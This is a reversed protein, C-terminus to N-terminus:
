WIKLYLFTKEGQNSTFSYQGKQLQSIIQPDFVSLWNLISPYSTDLIWGGIDEDQQNATAAACSQRKFEQPTRPPNSLGLENAWTQNYFLVYATRQAPIGLRRGNIM